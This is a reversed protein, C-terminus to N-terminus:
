RKNAADTKKGADTVDEIALLIFQSRDEGQDIRRANLLMKRPGIGPFEHEVEFDDFQADRITKSIQYGGEAGMFFRRLREQSVDAANNEPYKGTRATDIAADSVDTAFIQVPSQVDSEALYEPLAMAISYAEEGTSCGPVWVRISAEPARKKAAVFPGEEL